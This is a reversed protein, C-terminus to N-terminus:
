QNSMLRLFIAYKSVVHTVSTNPLKDSACADILAQLNSGNGSILVTINFQPEDTKQKKTSPQQVDEVDKPEDTPADPLQSLM